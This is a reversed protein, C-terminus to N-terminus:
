EHVGHGHGGHEGHGYGHARKFVHWEDHDIVGDGSQDIAHHVDKQAHPFHNKFEEWTVANDGSTDMDGFHGDYSAAFTMLPLAILLTLTLLM